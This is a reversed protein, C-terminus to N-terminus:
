AILPLTTGPACLQVHSQTDGNRALEYRPSLQATGATLEPALKRPFFEIFQETTGVADGEAARVSGVTVVSLAKPADRLLVDLARERREGNQAAAAIRSSLALM